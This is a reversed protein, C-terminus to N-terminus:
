IRLGQLISGLKITRMTQLETKTGFFVPTIVQQRHDILIVNTNQKNYPVLMFRRHYTKCMNHLYVNQIFPERNCDFNNKCGIFAGGGLLDMAEALELPGDGLGVATTQPWEDDSHKPEIFMEFCHRPKVNKVNDSTYYRFGPPFFRYLPYKTDPNLETYDNINYITYTFPLTYAPQRIGYVNLPRSLDIYRKDHTQQEHALLKRLKDNVELGSNQASFRVGVIPGFYPGSLTDDLAQPVHWEQIERFHTELRETDRQTSLKVVGNAFRGGNNTLFDDEFLVTTVDLSKSMCFWVFKNTDSSPDGGMGGDGSDGTRSANATRRANPAEGADSFDPWEQMVLDAGEVPAGTLADIKCPNILHRATVVTFQSRFKPSVAPHTLPIRHPFSTIIEPDKPLETFRLPRCYPGDARRDPVFGRELQCMCNAEHRPDVLVSDLKGYNGCAVDVNCDGSITAQTVLGPYKCKCVFSFASAEPDRKVLVWSGTNPNCSRNAKDNDIEICYGRDPATNAPVHHLLLGMDDEVPIDTDFHRCETNINTCDFCENPVTGMTCEVVNKSPDCVKTNSLSINTMPNYEIHRLKANEYRRLKNNSRNPFDFNLYTYLVNGFVYVFVMVYFLFEIM